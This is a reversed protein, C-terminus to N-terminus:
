TSGHVTYGFPSLGLTLHHAQGSTITLAVELYPHLHVQDGYWEDTDFRVTLAGPPLGEEVRARGEADTRGHLPDGDSKTVRIGVGVAPTGTVTDVVLVSLSTRTIGLDEKVRDWASM